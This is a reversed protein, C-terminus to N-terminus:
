AWLDAILRAAALVDPAELTGEPPSTASGYGTRVLVPRCGAALGAELDSLKDGVMFSRSLDLCHERAAALLMGPSPKRCGCPGTFDPHHPCHYFPPSPIGARALDAAVRRHLEHVDEDRYLGRSVGAQNTVIATFIGRDRFLALAELAGPMWEFDEWRWTYGRDWNLTGDRDLFVAPRPPAAPAAGGDPCPRGGGGGPPHM